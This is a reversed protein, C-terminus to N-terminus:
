LDSEAPLGKKCTLAENVLKVHCFADDKPMTLLLMMHVLARSESKTSSTTAPVVHEHGHLQLQLALLIASSHSKLEM